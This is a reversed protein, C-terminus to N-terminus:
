WGGEERERKGKRKGEEGGLDTGVESTCGDGFASVAVAEVNSAAEADVTM